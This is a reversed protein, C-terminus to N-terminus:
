QVAMAALDCQEFTSLEFLFSAWAILDNSPMDVSQHRMRMVLVPLLPSSRRASCLQQRRLKFVLGGFHPSRRPPLESREVSCARRHTRNAFGPGDIRDAPALRAHGVLRVGRPALLAFAAPPTTKGDCMPSLPIRNALGQGRDPSIAEEAPWPHQHGVSAVRGALHFRRPRVWAQPFQEGERDKSGETPDLPPAPYGRKAVM